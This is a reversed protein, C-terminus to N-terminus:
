SAAQRGECWDSLGAYRQSDGYGVLDVLLERAYVVDASVIGAIWKLDKDGDLYAMISKRIWNRESQEPTKM